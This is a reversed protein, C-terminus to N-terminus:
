YNSCVTQMKVIDEAFAALTSCTVEEEVHTHSLKIIGKAPIVDVDVSYRPQTATPTLRYHTNGNVGKSVAGVRYMAGNADKLTTNSQLYNIINEM